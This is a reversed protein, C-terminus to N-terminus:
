DIYLIIMVTPIVYVDSDAKNYLCANSFVLRMLMAFEEKTKVQQTEIRRQITGLDMPEKVVENYDPINLKVPDVPQLFPGAWKHSMIRRLCKYCLNMERSLGRPIM